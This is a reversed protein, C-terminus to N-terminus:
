KWGQFICGHNIYLICFIRNEYIFICGHNIHFISFEIKMCLIYVWTKMYLIKFIENQDMFYTGM